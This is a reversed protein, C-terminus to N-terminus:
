LLGFLAHGGAKRKSTTNRRTTKRASATRKSGTSKRRPNRKRNQPLGSLTSQEKKSAEKKAKAPQIVFHDILLYTAGAGAAVLGGTTVPNDKIWQGTRAWFGPTTSKGTEGGEQLSGEGAPAPSNTTATNTENPAMQERAAARVAERAAEAESAGDALAEAHAAAAAPSATTLGPLFKETTSLLDNVQQSDKSGDKKEPPSAPTFNKGIFPEGTVRELQHKVDGASKLALALASMTGTAATIAAAASVPEGLAGLEHLSSGFEAQYIDKGLIEQISAGPRAYFALGDLGTSVLKDRNGKGTLIAKKMNEPKGGAKFFISSARALVKQIEAHTKAVLGLQVAQSRSLYGFRLRGAVNFMNIKFALLIGSRLLTPGPNVRNVTHQTSRAIKKIAKGPNKAAQQIQEKAADPNTVTKIVTSAAKASPLVDALKKGINKLFGLDGDANELLDRADVSLDGAATVHVESLPGTGAESASTQSGPSEPLGNLYHLQMQKDIKHLYPVEYDFSTAVCDITIHQGNNLPVIPYIHTYSDETPYRTVRLTHPIGLNFLISSIFVSYCDCDGLRDWWTRAPRRVEEIGPTDKKYRIHDVVFDWIKRSTERLTDGRLKPAIRATDPLTKRVVAAILHLTHALNADREIVQHEGKPRPFLHNFGAGSKIHRSQLVEM